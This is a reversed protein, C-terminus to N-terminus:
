GGCEGLGSTSCDFSNRSPPALPRSRNIANQPISSRSQPPQPASVVRSRPNSDRSSWESRRMPKPVPTTRGRPQSSPALANEAEPQTPAPAPTVSGAELCPPHSPSSPVTAIGSCCNGMLHYLPKSSQMGRRGGFRFGLVSAATQAILNYVGPM